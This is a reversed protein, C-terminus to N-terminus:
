KAAAAARDVASEVLNSRELPTNDRVADIWQGSTGVAALNSNLLAMM